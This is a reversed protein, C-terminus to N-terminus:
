ANVKGRPKRGPKPDPKAAARKRTASKAKQDAAKAAEKLDVDFEDGQEPEDTEGDAKRELEHKALNDLRYMGPKPRVFDPSRDLTKRITAKPTKGELKVGKTAMIKEALEGIPMTESQGLEGLITTAADKVSVRQQTKTM